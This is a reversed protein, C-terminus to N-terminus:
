EDNWIRITVKNILTNSLGQKEDSLEAGGWNVTMLHEHEGFDIVKKLSAILGLLGEKNGHIEVEDGDQTIEFTLLIKNKM